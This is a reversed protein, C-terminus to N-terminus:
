SRDGQILELQAPYAPRVIPPEPEAGETVLDVRAESRGRHGIAALDARYKAKAVHADCYVGFGPIEHTGTNPCDAFHCDIPKSM